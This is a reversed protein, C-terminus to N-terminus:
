PRYTRARVGLQLCPTQYAEKVWRCLLPRTDRPDIIDEIGFREATRFPSELPRFHNVLEDRRAKPDPANAIERKYAAEVGGEVPISGWYASPWALRVVTNLPGYAAGAVGFARRIFITVWQVSTQDIACQFRIAKRVTGRQEAATGVNVGPQDFFNVVPLHFTDCLDIFRTSKDAATDTLAGGWVHLDNALIGVPHGDLRGLMTIESGGWYRGIEFLSNRDFVRELITRMKYIQRKNKPVISALENDRRVPSDDTALIPPLEYVNPPLYSLFRKVQAIADSEDSAVNDVVGSGHAHVNAGGLTEKDVVEGIGPGVVAPGAAFVQSTGKVMISFHSMIVRVAGFGACPGMAVGVVPIEGLMQTAPWHPYGPIKTAGMKELLNISGGATEVLRILPMRYTLALREAYEWKETINVESSGGRVTFDDASVVVNRGDVRGKGIVISAPKVSKLQGHEDYLASGTMAGIEQFSDQDLLM